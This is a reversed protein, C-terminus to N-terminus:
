GWQEEVDDAGGRQSAPEQDWQDGSDVHTMEPKSRFNRIDSGGFRSHNANSNFGGSGAEEQLWEPVVQNADALVRVLDAAMNGDFHPDYFSTARGVNGVRGTRGIRHVYEEITKPLDYNIVHRVDQIDLGRAAVSTAVLVKMEGSRFTHLADERQEQTRDGHITTSKTLTLSFNAGLFDATKKLEVFVLTRDCDDSILSKVTDLKKLKPVQLIVQEVDTNAAGISGVTLFLYDPKLLKRALEQVDQPFTASFMLIHRNGQEDSKWLKAVEEVEGRFGTDLMRDAEDLVYYKLKTFSLKGRRVFDHMRGPTAVLIHCGKDLDRLHHGVSVGGYAVCSRIITGHTFKKAENYIQLALERTPALIVAYPEQAEKFSASEVEGAMLNEVIPLLFAATKGSGTQACAMLDRKAMIIPLAYKQVPTPVLYKSKKVNDLLYQRLGSEEFSNIKAPINEGSVKVSINDYKAFNIGSPITQFM